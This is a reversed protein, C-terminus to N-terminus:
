QVKRILIIVIIIITIMISALWWLCSKPTLTIMIFVIETVTAIIILLLVLRLLLVVVLLIQSSLVPHFLHDVPFQALLKCKIVRVFPIHEVWFRDEFILGVFNEPIKPYMVSWWIKHSSSSSLSSLYFSFRGFLPSQGKPQASPLDFFAFLIILVLLKSSFQFFSNFMFIVTIDITIPARPVTVLPNIYPWSSKSILPRTSVM